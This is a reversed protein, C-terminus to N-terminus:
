PAREGRHQRSMFLAAEVRNRLQLKQLINTIYYKVTKETLFLQEGIERNTLGRAVLQLISRERDTLDGLVPAGSGRDRPLALETLVRGAMAPSIYTGGSHVARIAELLHTGSIGKLLYGRAGEKLAALLTSEDEVVTLAIVKSFPVQRHLAVAVDLGNQDPLGIDLLVVDPLLDAALQLAGTATAAEGVVEMDPEQALTQLVGKRFLSHDDVVLIRIRDM